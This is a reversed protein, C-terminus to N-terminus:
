SIAAIISIAAFLFLVIRVCGNLQHNLPNILPTVRGTVLGTAAGM